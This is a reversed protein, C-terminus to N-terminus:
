SGGVLPPLVEEGEIPSSQPSPAQGFELAVRISEAVAERDALVENNWFRLVQYGQGMLWMSRAEDRTRAQIEAHQGGDIEIILRKEFSVFDVVYPGIPEQRRFKFGSIQKRRLIAWIAKEADTQEHRLRRALATQPRRSMDEKVWLISTGGREL